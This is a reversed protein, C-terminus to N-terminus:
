SYFSLAKTKDKTLFIPLVYRKGSTVMNVGHYTKEGKSEFFVIDGMKPSYIFDINPFVIEGGTYENNLYIVSSIDFHEKGDEEDTHVSMFYGPNYASLIYDALYLDYDFLENIKKLYKSFVSLLDSDDIEYVLQRIQNEQGVFLRDAIKILQQCDEESIFNHIVQIANNSFDM